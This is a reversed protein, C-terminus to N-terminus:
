QWSIVANSFSPDYYPSEEQMVKDIRIMKKAHGDEQRGDLKASAKKM